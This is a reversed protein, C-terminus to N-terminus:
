RERHRRRDFSAGPFDSTDRVLIQSEGHLVAALDVPWRAGCLCAATITLALPGEDDSFESEPIRSRGSTLADRGPAAAKVVVTRSGDGAVEVWALPEGKRPCALVNERRV